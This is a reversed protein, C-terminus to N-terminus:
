VKVQWIGHVYRGEVGGLVFWGSIGDTLALRHGKWPGSKCEYMTKKVQRMRRTISSKTIM